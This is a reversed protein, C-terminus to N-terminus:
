AHKPRGGDDGGSSWPRTLAAFVLGLLVLLPDHHWAGVVALVTGIHSGHTGAALVLTLCAVAAACEVPTIM